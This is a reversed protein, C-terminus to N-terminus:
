PGPRHPQLPARRLILRVPCHPDDPEALVTIVARSEWAFRALSEIEAERSHFDRLHGEETMLLFGDFDGFRDYIVGDVKGTAERDRDTGNGSGPPGGHRGPAGRVGWPSPKITGAHGGLGNIRAEILGIYRKLVPIWRNGPEMQDLRWKMIALTNEELPLMEGATTVPIRVAFTGVIYRWNTM